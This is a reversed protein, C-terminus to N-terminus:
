SGIRGDGKPPVLDRRDNRHDPQRHFVERRSHAQPIRKPEGHRTPVADRRMDRAFMLIQGALDQSAKGAEADFESHGLGLRERLMEEVGQRHAYGCIATRPGLCLAEQVIHQAGTGDLRCRNLAL